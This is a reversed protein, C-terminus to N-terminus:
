NGRLDFTSPIDWIHGRCVRRPRVGGRRRFIFRDSLYPATTWHERIRPFWRLASVLVQRTSDSLAGSLDALNRNGEPLDSLTRRKGRVASSFRRVTGHKSATGNM